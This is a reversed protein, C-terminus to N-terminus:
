LFPCRFQQGALRDIDHDSVPIEFGSLNSWYKYGFLECYDLLEPTYFGADGRFIIEVDPWAQKIM